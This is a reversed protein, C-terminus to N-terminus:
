RAAVEVRESLAPGQAVERSPPLYGDPHFRVHFHDAHGPEHRILGQNHNKARPYQFLRALEGKSSGQAKLYRYLTRQLRRDLFIFQVERSRLLTSFVFWTRELDLTWPSAPTSFKTPKRLIMRVDADRGTRHSRHPKLVGGRKASLDHVMIPLADPYRRQYERGLEALRSVTTFTGWARDPNRVMLGTSSELQHFRRWRRHAPRAPRRVKGTRRGGKALKAGASGPLDDLASDSPQSAYALSCSFLSIILAQVFRM